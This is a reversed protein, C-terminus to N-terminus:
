RRVLQFLAIDSDFEGSHVYIPRGTGPELTMGRGASVFPAPYARSAGGAVARVVIAPRAGDSTDLQSTFGHAM